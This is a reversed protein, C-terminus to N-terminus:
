GEIAMGSACGIISQECIGFNFFKKSSKELNMLFEM